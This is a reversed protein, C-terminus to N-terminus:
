AWIDSVAVVEGVAEAVEVWVDVTVGKGNGVSGGMVAVIAAMTSEYEAVITAM